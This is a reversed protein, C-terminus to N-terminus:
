SVGPFSGTAVGFGFLSLFPRVALGVVRWPAEAIDVVRQLEGADNLTALSLGRSLPFPKSDIEVHWEVGVSRESDCAVDDVVLELRGMPLGLAATLFAPHFSLARAFAARGRCVTSAGLLLDEYVVDEAVLAAVADADRANFAAYLAKIQSKPSRRPAAEPIRAAAALSAEDAHPMDIQLTALEADIADRSRQLAAIRDSRAGADNAIRPPPPPTTTSTLGDALPAFFLALSVVLAAGGRRTM